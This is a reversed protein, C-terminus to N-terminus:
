LAKGTLATLAEKYCKITNDIVHQPLPPAPPEKNWGSGELYDRVFQKDLSFQVKGPTYKDKPWFRSSDPTLVEDILIVRGEFLGFEFKTDAIIINKTLAFDRAMQYIDISYRRLTEAVDGGVIEAARTFSINEDHGETAKTAPTFLPEDLRSGSKYGRKLKLGCVSGSQEYEKLGSGALYGRVVCEVPLVQTKKVLMSRGELVEKYKHLVAPMKAIETTIYHHEIKMKESIMEFWFKSMQTLIIGKQPIPDPLVSDFASLRDTAVILLTDGLDYVDRVKGRALLKCDPFETKYVASM